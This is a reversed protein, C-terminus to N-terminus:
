NEVEVNMNANDVAEFVAVVEREFVDKKLFKESDYVSIINEMNEAYVWGVFEYGSVCVKAVCTIADEDGLAEFDDGIVMASGGYTASIAVGSVNAGSSLKLDNYNTTSTRTYIKVEPEEFVCEFVLGFANTAKNVMYKVSLAYDCAGVFAGEYSDVNFFTSNDFSVQRIYKSSDAPTIVVRMVMASEDYHLKYTNVVIDDIKIIYQSFNAQLTINGTVTFTYSVNGTISSGNKSWNVFSYGSAPTASVTLATGYDYTGAGSVSGWASNNAVLTVTFTKLKFNATYVGAGSVALNYTASSSVIQGNENTWSLFNYNAKPTAVLTAMAFHNYTGGGTAMGKNDDASKVTIQYSNIAFNATYSVNATATFSYTANSSVVAGGSTNTWNVFHYGTKPTATITTQTNADIEGGGSVTGMTTNASQVTITFSPLAEFYAYYYMVGGGTASTPAITFSATTSVTVNNKVWKVFRYGENPTAIAVCSEGFDGGFGWDGRYDAHNTFDSGKDAGVTGMTKDTSNFVLLFDVVLPSPAAEAKRGGSFIVVASVSFAVILVVAAVLFIVYRNSALRAGGGGFVIM